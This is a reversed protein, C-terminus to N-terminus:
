VVSDDRYYVVEHKPSLETFYVSHDSAGSPSFINSIFDFANQDKFHIASIKRFKAM